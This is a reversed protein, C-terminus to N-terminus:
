RRTSTRCVLGFCGRRRVRPWAATLRRWCGRGCIRRIAGDGGGRWRRGGLDQSEPCRIVSERTESDGRLSELWHPPARTRGILQGLIRALFDHAIEWVRNKGELRR